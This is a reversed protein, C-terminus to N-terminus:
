RAILVKTTFVEKNASTLKLMYLGRPLASIDLRYNTANVEAGFVIQGTLNFLELTKINDHSILNMYESAPNPYLSLQIDWVDKVNSIHQFNATLTVDNAPMIHTFTSDTSVVNGDADTWDVFKYGANATAIITVETRAEYAGGGEVTGYDSPYALLTLMYTVETVELTVPVIVLEGNVANSSIRINATYTGTELGAADFNVVITQSQDEVITGSTPDITLWQVGDYQLRARINWNANLGYDSLHEWDLADSSILNGDLNAPGGDIGLVFIGADHTIEFGVWLDAGSVVLAEDLIVTNWSAGEPTFVQEHLLAGPTTSTGADWVILKIETPVDNIYVDISELQYGSFPAVMESTYRAAGYFTGGENL